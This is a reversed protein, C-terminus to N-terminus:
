LWERIFHGGAGLLFIISKKNTSPLLSIGSLNHKFIM